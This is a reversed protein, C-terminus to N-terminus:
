QVPIGEIDGVDSFQEGGISYSLKYKLRVKEKRPNAVLMVQTIAAPPLIPNYAPFESASPPQLKVKMIKPVAAQFVFSSVSSQNTSMTSVVMTVVDPRPRVAAFHVMVKLGNKEYAQVSPINPAPQIKELPVFVDTLPLLEPEPAASVLPSFDAETPATNTAPTQVQSELATASPASSAPQPTLLSNSAAILPQPTQITSAATSAAAAAAVAAAKNAALQNM